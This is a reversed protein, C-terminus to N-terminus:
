SLKTGPCGSSEDAAPTAEGACPLHPAAPSGHPTRLSSGCVSRCSQIASICAFGFKRVGCTPRGRSSASTTRM